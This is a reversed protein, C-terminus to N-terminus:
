DALDLAVLAGRAEDWKRRVDRSVPDPSDVTAMLADFM